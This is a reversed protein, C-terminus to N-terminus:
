LELQFIQNKMGITYEVMIRDAGLSLLKYEGDDNKMSTFLVATVDKYHARHKGIFNWAFHECDYKYVCVTRGVDQIFIVFFDKYM